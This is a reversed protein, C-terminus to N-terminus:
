QALHVCQAVKLNKYMGMNLIVSVNIGIGHQQPLLYYRTNPVICVNQATQMQIHTQPAFNAFKWVPCIQGFNVWLAYNACV